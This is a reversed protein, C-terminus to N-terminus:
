KQILVDGHDEVIKRYWWDPYRPQDPFVNQGPRDESEMFRGDKEKKINGDMYKVLLYHSLNTWATFMNDAQENSYKNLAATLQDGSLNKVKADNYVIISTNDVTFNM